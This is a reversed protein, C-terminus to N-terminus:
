EISVHWPFKIASVLIHPISFAAFNFKLVTTVAGNQGDNQEVPHGPVKNEMNRDTHRNIQSETQSGKLSVENETGDTEYVLAESIVNSMVAQESLLVFILDIFGDALVM